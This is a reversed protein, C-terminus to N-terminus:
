HSTMIAVPWWHYDLGTFLTNPKGNMESSRQINRAVVMLSSIFNAAPLRRFKCLLRNRTPPSAKCRAVEGKTWGADYVSWEIRFNTLM